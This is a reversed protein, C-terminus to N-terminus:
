FLQGDPIKDKPIEGETVKDYVARIDEPALPFAGTGDIIGLYLTALEKFRKFEVNSNPEADIADKIQRRTSHIDEVLNTCVVEDLVMSRLIARKAIEPLENLKSSILRETKFIRESATSIERTVVLFAEGNPTTFGTKFTSESNLRANLAEVLNKDRSSSHDMHYLKALEQHGM